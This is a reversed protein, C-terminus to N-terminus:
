SRREEIYKQNYNIIFDNLQQLCKNDWVTNNTTHFCFKRWPAYWKIEGLFSGGKDYIELIPTKRDKIINKKIIFYTGEYIIIENM